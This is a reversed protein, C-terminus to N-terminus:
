VVHVLRCRSCPRIPGQWGRSMLLQGVFAATECQATGTVQAWGFRLTTIGAAAHDNDRLMDAFAAGGSHHLRSDLEVLVRYAQYWGDSRHSSGASTQRMATPLGHAREVHIQYRRELASHAGTSVDGLVDRLLARDPLRRRTRVEARLREPTTRRSSVADALRAAIEDEDGTACLDIVTADLGTRVPEGTGTRISRIFVWGPRPAIGLPSYVTIEQPEYGLLGHLHGAAEMGIVAMPGGILLGAWARGLWCPPGGRTYLGPTFAVLLESALMRDIVRASLGGEILQRRGLVGAQV